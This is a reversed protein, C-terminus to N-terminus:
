RNGTAMTRIATAVNTTSNPNVPLTTSGSLARTNLRSLRLATKPAMTHIKWSPCRDPISPKVGVGNGTAM